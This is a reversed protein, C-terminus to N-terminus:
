MGPGPKPLITPNSEQVFFLLSIDGKFVIVGQKEDIIASLTPNGQEERRGPARLVGGKWPKPVKEHTRM